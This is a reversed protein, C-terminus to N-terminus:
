AHNDRRARQEAWDPAVPRDKMLLPLGAAVFVVREIAAAIRQHLRGAHDRFERALANDPVIGLGVENSVLLVPCPARSLAHLLQDCGEDPDEGAHLLNSLWLTLCDILIPRGAQTNNAVADALALPEEITLWSGNRQARHAAIRTAMEVDGAQATAIYVAQTAGSADILQEAYRSKGARAGGLILTAPPLRTAPRHDM